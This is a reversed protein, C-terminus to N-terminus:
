GAREKSWVVHGLADLIDIRTVEEFPKWVKDSLLYECEDRMEQFNNHHGGTIPERGEGRHAIWSYETTRLERLVTMVVPDQLIARLLDRTTEAVPKELVASIPLTLEGLNAM